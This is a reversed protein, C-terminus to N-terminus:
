EASELKPAYRRLGDAAMYLARDLDNLGGLTSISKAYIELRDALELWSNVPVPLRESLETWSHDVDVKKDTM